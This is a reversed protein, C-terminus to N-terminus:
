PKCNEQYYASIRQSAARVDPAAIVQFAQPDVKSLDYNVRELEAVVTKYAEAVTDVDAKIESPARDAAEELGEEIKSYLQRLDTGTPQQNKLAEQSNALSACADGSGAAAQGDGDGDGGCAAGAVLAAVALVMAVKRM